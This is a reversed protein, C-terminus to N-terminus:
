AIPKERIMLFIVTGIVLFGCIQGVFALPLIHLPNINGMSGKVLFFMANCILFQIFWTTAWISFFLKGKSQAICNFRRRVLSILPIIHALLYTCAIIFVTGFLIPMLADKGTIALSIGLGFTIFFLLIWFLIMFLIFWNLEQRNAIDKYNFINKFALLYCNWANNM